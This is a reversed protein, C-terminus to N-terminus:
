PGVVTYNAGAITCPQPSAQTIVEMNTGICYDNKGTVADTGFPTYLYPNGQPDKPVGGTFFSDLAPTLNAPWTTYGSEQWSNQIALSISKLDGQRIADRSKAKSSTLSPVIVAALIGIIAVVTLLEILTFGKKM